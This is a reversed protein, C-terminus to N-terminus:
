VVFIPWSGRKSRAVSVRDVHDFRCHTGRHGHPLSLAIKVACQTTRARGRSRSRRRRRRRWTPPSEVADTLGGSEASPADDDLCEATGHVSERHRLPSTVEFYVAFPTKRRM